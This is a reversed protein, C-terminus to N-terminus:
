KKSFTLDARNDTFIIKDLKWTKELENGLFSRTFNQSLNGFSFFAGIVPIKLLFSIREEFDLNFKGYQFGIINPQNNSDSSIVMIQWLKDSVNQKKFLYLKRDIIDIKYISKDLNDKFIDSEVYKNLEEEFLSISVLKSTNNIINSKENLLRDTDKTMEIPPLRGDDGVFKYMVNNIAFEQLAPVKLLLIPLVCISLFLLFLFIKLLNIIGGILRFPFLLINLISNIFSFPNPININPTKINDRYIIKPKSSIYIKQPEVYKHDDDSGKEKRNSDKDAGDDHKMLSRFTEEKQIRNFEELQKKLNEYAGM